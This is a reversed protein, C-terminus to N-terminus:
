ALAVLMALAGIEAVQTVAGLTDGTIGGIWARGTIGGAAAVGAVVAAAAAGDWGLLGVALGAAVLMALAVAALPTRGSLVSGPGGETRAYPLLRALPPSAARSLAGAVAFVVVANREVAAAGLLSSEVLLALALAVAGFSGIRSDRMIELARERTPAGLADASDALADLHLAGTLCAALGVGLGGAAIAPLPGELGEAVLGGVAGVAAGVLPFFATGRGVDDPGLEAWRGLPIRTLFAVAALPARFSGAPM